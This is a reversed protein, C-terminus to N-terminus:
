YRRELVMVENERKMQFRSLYSNGLLVFPMSQPTVVAEVGFIEVDGIRVSDLTLKYGRTVGNATGMNVPTGNKYNLGVREAESVGMAISTAGTDVMFQVAKGNITGQSMFHGGSSANLVIKAGKGAGSSGAGVSVPADGVRLTQRKGGVDVVAQDGSVSVVKVGQHTDGPAVTKPANAGVVLIAKSGITGSLAVTPAASQAIAAASCLLGFALLLTKM